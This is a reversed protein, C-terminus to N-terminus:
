QLSLAPKHLGTANISISTRTVKEEPFLQVAKFGWANRKKNYSLVSLGTVPKNNIIAGMKLLRSDVFVGNVFGFSKGQLSKFRGNIPKLFSTNKQNDSLRIQVATCKLKQKDYGSNYNRKVQQIIQSIGTFHVEIVRGPLVHKIQNKFSLIGHFQKSVIFGLRGTKNDVWEVVAKIPKQGPFLIVSPNSFANYFAKNNGNHKARSYWDQNRCNVIEDPIKWGNAGRTKVLQDVETKAEAYKKESVLLRIFKQRTNVLFEPKTKCSLATCLCNMQKIPDDIFIDAMLEWVWFQNQKQLVFPLIVRLAAKKEQLGIYIRALYYNLFGPYNQIQTELVEVFGKIKEPKIPMEDGTNETKIAFRASLVKAYNLYCNEALSMTKKNNFSGPKKDEDTLNEFGWWDAFALFNYHAKFIKLFAKLLFSYGKEPKTFNFHMIAEFLQYARHMNKEPQRALAFVWKGLQWSCSDFFMHDNEPINLSKIKDVIKTVDGPKNKGIAMKLFDYYVWAMNLNYTRDDSNEMLKQHALHWADVLRGAKRLSTITTHEM